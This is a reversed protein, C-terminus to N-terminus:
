TEHSFDGFSNVVQLIVETREKRQGEYTHSLVLYSVAGFRSCNRTDAVGIEGVFRIRGSLCSTEFQAAPAILFEAPLM